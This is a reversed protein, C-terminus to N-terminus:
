FYERTLAKLYHNISKLKTLSSTHMRWRQASVRLRRPCFQYIKVGCRGYCRIYNISSPSVQDIRTRETFVQDAQQSLSDGEKWEHSAHIWHPPLRAEAQLVQVGRHDDVAWKTWVSVIDILQPWFTSSLPPRSRPQTQRVHNRRQWRLGRCM